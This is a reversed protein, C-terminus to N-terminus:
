FSTKEDSKIIFSDNKNVSEPNIELIIKSSDVNESKNNQIFIPNEFAQDLYSKLLVSAKKTYDNSSVISIEQGKTNALHLSNQAMIKCNLFSLFVVICFTPLQKIQM